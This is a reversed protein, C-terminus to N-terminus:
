SEHLGKFFRILFHILEDTKDKFIMKKIFYYMSGYLDFAIKYDEKGYAVCFSNWDNYVKYPVNKKRIINHWDRLGM